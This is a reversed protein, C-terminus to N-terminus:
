VAKCIEKKIKNVDKSEYPVKILADCEKGFYVTEFDQGSICIYNHEDIGVVLYRQGKEDEAVDGIQLNHFKKSLYVDYKDIVEKCTLKNFDERIGAAELQSDKLNFIEFAMNWGFEAGEDFLDNNIKAEWTDYMDCIYKQLWGTKKVREICYEDTLPTLRELGAADFVLSDFIKSKWLQNKNEKKEQIFPEDEIELIYKM